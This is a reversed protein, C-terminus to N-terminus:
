PSTLRTRGDHGTTRTRGHNDPLFPLPTFSGGAMTIGGGGTVDINTQRLSTYDLVIGGGGSTALAMQRITSLGFSIAGGGRVVAAVQRITSAGLTVSGGARVSAAMQRITSLEITLSGGGRVAVAEQRITSVAPTVSGGGVVGVVSEHVTEVFEGAGIVGSDSAAGNLAADTVAAGAFLYTRLADLTYDPDASVTFDYRKALEALANATTGPGGLSADWTALTRFIDVCPNASLVVDNAGPATGSFITGSTAAYGIGDSGSIGGFTANHHFSAGNTLTTTNITGRAMLTANSGVPDIALCDTIEAPEGDAGAYTEGMQIVGRESASSTSVITCHRATIINGAGLLSLLKGAQTGNANAGRVCREALVTRATAAQLNICDGNEATGDYGFWVRRYVQATNGSPGVHHPNDGAPQWFIADEITGSPHAAITLSSVYYLLKNFATLPTTGAISWGNKFLVGDTGSISWGSGTSLRAIKDLSCDEIYSGATTAGTGVTFCDNAHVTNKWTVRRFGYTASVDATATSELRGCADFVCDHFRFIAASSGAPQSAFAANGSNGIRLFQTFTCDVDGLNSFGGLGFRGNGGGANSRVIVPNALTGNCRFINRSTSNVGFLIRYAQNTPNTAQSSDFELISGAQMVWQERSTADGKMVSDGRLTLQVGAAVILKSTVDNFTIVRTASNQAPSTGIITNTDVTVTHGSAIIALDGNGPAVGGVWTGGASWNGTAASTITAM